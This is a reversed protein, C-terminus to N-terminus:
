GEDRIPRGDVKGQGVIQTSSCSKQTSTTLDIYTESVTYLLFPLALRMIQLLFASADKVGFICKGYLATRLTITREPLVLPTLQSIQIHPLEHLSNCQDESIEIHRGETFSLFLFSALRLAPSNTRRVRCEDSFHAEHQLIRHGAQIRRHLRIFLATEDMVCVQNRHKSMQAIMRLQLGQFQMEMAATSNIAGVISEQVVHLTQLSISDGEHVPRRSAFIRATGLLFVTDPTRQEDVTRPLRLLEINSHMVRLRSQAECAVSCTRIPANRKNEYRGM